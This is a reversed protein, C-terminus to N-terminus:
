KRSAKERQKKKTGGDCSFSVRAMRKGASAGRVL